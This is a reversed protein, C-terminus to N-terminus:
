EKNIPKIFVLVLLCQFVRSVFVAKIIFKAVSVTRLDERLLDAGTLLPFILVALSFLLILM